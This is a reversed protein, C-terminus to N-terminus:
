GVSLVLLQQAAHDVVVVRGQLLAGLRERVELAAAEVFDLHDVM